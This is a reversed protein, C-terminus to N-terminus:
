AAERTLLGKLVNEERQITLAYREDQLSGAERISRKLRLMTKWDLLDYPGRIEGM